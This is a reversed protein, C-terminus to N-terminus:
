AAPPEEPLRTVMVKDIRRGDMDIVEIRLGAVEVADGAAPIRGLAHLALGAVTDYDRSADLGRLDLATAFADIALLGDVLMSGDARQVIGPEDQEEGRDPLAGAIGELIDHATVVGETVGYEDVVLAFHIGERRFMDILRLVGLGESIVLPHRLLAPIDIADGRLVTAVVDAMDVYGIAHDVGGDCVLVRRHRDAEFLRALEEGGATREIWAIDLRPTMVARVTRDAIRLVGDIMEREQPAFVGARTGEAILAKVEEETIGASENRGLGLLRLVADTSHRLLWVAPAAVQSLTRMPKAVLAATREPNALAIRKPVLEGVVLSLYTIVIVVVVFAVAAGNPAIWGIRDLGEGLPEALTAGGFAGAFIGVLTIGIQVTSLFRSPDEILGLAVRAGGSGAEAMAELRVKRSSVIALESMALVGNVVILVLVVLAEILPM